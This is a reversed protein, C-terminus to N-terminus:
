SSVIGGGQVVDGTAIDYMVVSQGPAVRRVPREWRLSSGTWQGRRRPGHASYQGIVETGPPLPAEPWVLSTLATEDVLLDDASGLTITRSTRDIDVVYRPADGGGLGLGRRQGVTVLEIAPVTGVVSGDADVMRGEHVDARASVFALRGEDSRIFCVDQSDPKLATSLGLEAAKARVEAKTMGGIPFMSHALVDSTATYLVYSQDKADDAGRAIRWGTGEAVVRAHHGTAVVDFGLHEARRMLADFKVHRNCEICPNPTNGAMHDAVYPGVVDQDFRDGLNFVLHDIGLANAAWRADDVDSVSCCGSDSEGGWLRMTVGVVDHGADRVLAAAVSSDVGGSMAVLVRAM